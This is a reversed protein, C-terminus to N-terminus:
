KTIEDIWQMFNNCISTDSNNEMNTRTKTITLNVKILNLTSTKGDKCSHLIGNNGVLLASIVDPTEAVQQLFVLHLKLMLLYDYDAYYYDANLYDYFSQTGDVFDFLDYDFSQANKEIVSVQSYLVEILM